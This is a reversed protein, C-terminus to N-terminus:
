ENSNQKISENKLEIDRIIESLYSGKHVKDNLRKKLSNEKGEIKELRQWNQNRTEEKKDVEIKHQTNIIHLKPAKGQTHTHTHTYRCISQERVSLESVSAM